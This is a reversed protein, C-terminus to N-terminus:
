FWGGILLEEFLEVGFGGFGDFEELFGGGGFAEWDAEAREGIDVGGEGADGDFAGGEVALFEVVEDLPEVAGVFEAGSEGLGGLAVGEEGGAGGAESVEALDEFFDGGFDEGVAGEGVVGRGEEFFCAAGDVALAVGDLVGEFFEEAGVFVVADELVVEDGDAVVAEDDGEDGALAGFDGADDVGGGAGAGGEEDLGHFGDREVVFEDAEGFLLHAFDV